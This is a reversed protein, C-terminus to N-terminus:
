RGASLIRTVAYTTPDVVYITNGNRVYRQDRRLHYRTVYPQPLAGFDTYAYSPGFRYGVHYGREWAVCQGHRWSACNGNNHHDRAAAPVATLAAAAAGLVFLSKIM